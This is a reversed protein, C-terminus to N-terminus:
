TRIVISVLYFKVMNARAKQTFDINFPVKDPQKHSLSTIVRERNTM